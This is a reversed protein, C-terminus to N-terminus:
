QHTCVIVARVEDMSISWGDMCLPIMVADAELPPYIGIGGVTATTLM